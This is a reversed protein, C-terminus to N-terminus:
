VGLQPRIAGRPDHPPNGAPAGIPGDPNARWADLAWKVTPFAIADWPIDQWAFLRVEESEAGAVVEAIARMLNLRRYAFARENALAKTREAVERRLEDEAVSIRDAASKLEDLFSPTPKM